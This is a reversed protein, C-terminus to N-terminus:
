ACEFNFRDRLYKATESNSHFTLPEEISNGTEYDQIDIIYTGCAPDATLHVWCDNGNINCKAVNHCQGNGCTQCNEDFTFSFGLDKLTCEKETSM